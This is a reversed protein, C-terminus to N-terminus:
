LENVTICKGIIYSLPVLTVGKRREDTSTQSPRLHLYRGDIAVVMFRDFEVSGNSGHITIISSRRFPRFFLFFVGAFTNSLLDKAGVGLTVLAVSSLGIIPKTDVGLSGALSLIMTFWILTTFLKSTLKLVDADDIVASLMGQIANRLLEFPSYFGFARKTIPATSNAMVFVKLSATVATHQSVGKVAYLPSRGAQSSTILLILTTLVYLYM